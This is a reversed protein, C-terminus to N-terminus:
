ANIKYFDGHVCFLAEAFYIKQLAPLTLGRHTQFDAPGDLACAQHLGVISKGVNNKSEKEPAEDRPHHSDNNIYGTACSLAPGIWLNTETSDRAGVKENLDDTCKQFTDRTVEMIREDNTLMINQRLGRDHYLLSGYYYGVVTNQWLKWAAFIDLDVEWDRILYKKM